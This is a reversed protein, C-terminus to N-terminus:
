DVSKPRGAVCRRRCSSACVGGGARVRVSVAARVFECLAASPSNLCGGHQWKGGRAAGDM